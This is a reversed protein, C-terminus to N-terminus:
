FGDHRIDLLTGAAKPQFKRFLFEGGVLVGFSILAAVVVESGYVTGNRMCVWGIFVGYGFGILLLGNRWGRHNGVLLYNTIFLSFCMAVTTMSSTGDGRQGGPVFWPTYAASSEAAALEVFSIRGWVYSILVTIGWIGYFILLGVMARHIRRKEEKEPLDRIIRAGAWIALVLICIMTLWSVSGVDKHFYQMVDWYAYIPLGVSSLFGMVLVLVPAEEEQQKRFCYATLILSQLWAMIMTPLYAVREVWQTWTQPSFISESFELDIWGFFILAFLSIGLFLLVYFMENKNIM